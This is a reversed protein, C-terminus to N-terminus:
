VGASREREQSSVWKGVQRKKKRENPLRDPLFIKVDPAEEMMAIDLSLDIYVGMDAPSYMAVRKEDRLGGM